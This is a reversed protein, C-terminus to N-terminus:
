SAREVFSRAPGAGLPTGAASAREPLKHRTATM